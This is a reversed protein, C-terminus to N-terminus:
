ASGGCRFFFHQYLYRLSIRLVKGRGGISGRLRKMGKDRYVILGSKILMEIEKHNGM